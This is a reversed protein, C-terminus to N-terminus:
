EAAVDPGAGEILLRDEIARLTGQIRPDGAPLFGVLPILLLSADLRTSGYAQVSSNLDPDFGRECVEAHIEDAIERWRPGSENFVQAELVNAARDFAVWAMVKSHVFHQRGGRTEWMGEDPQRWATALHELVVSRLARGRESPELGAKLAQFMADFTEGFVDLQLQQSAANGIRV